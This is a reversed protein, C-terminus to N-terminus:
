QSGGGEKLLTHESWASGLQHVVKSMFWVIESDRLQASNHLLASADLQPTLTSISNM